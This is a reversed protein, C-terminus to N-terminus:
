LKGKELPSPAPNDDTFQKVESLPSWPMGSKFVWSDYKETVWNGSSESDYMAVRMDDGDPIGTRWKFPKIFAKNNERLSPETISDYIESWYDCNESSSNEEWIFLEDFDTPNPYKDYCWDNPDNSLVIVKDSVEPVLLELIHQVGSLDREQHKPENPTKTLILSELVDLRQKLRNIETDEKM